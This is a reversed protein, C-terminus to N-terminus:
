VRRVAPPVWRGDLVQPEPAYLRMTVGLPGRPAPVWNSEKGGGPKEHQLYLDLSGDAGFTLEDRDGIAFRNIPNAAQFGDEDYMTVSWFAGVPPLEDAEFHLVYDNAGDLPRRDADAILLPYVADEPQNAGLGVMAVVARRLYANGYVGLAETVMQWGNVPPALAAARRRM